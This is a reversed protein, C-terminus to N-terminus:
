GEWRSCYDTKCVRERLGIDCYNYTIGQYHKCNGCVRKAQMPCDDNREYRCEIESGTLVCCGIDHSDPHWPMDIKGCEVCDSPLEDVIVAEIKM